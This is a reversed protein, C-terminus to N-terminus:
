KEEFMELVAAQEPRAATRVAAWPLARIKAAVNDSLCYATVTGLFQQLQAAEALHRFTAGTRPSYFLVGAFTGARLGALAAAPLVKATEARYLVERRYSFGAADLMGALDGALKSGAAHLLAGAGTDLSGVALRALDDVDGAASAVESFGLANATRATADGVALVKIAREPSRAAFARAGNASTLLVAQVGALDLAPGPTIEIDLLPASVAEVGRRALEAALAAADEEPRTILVRM